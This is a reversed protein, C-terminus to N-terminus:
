VEFIGLNRCCKKYKKGSRCPCPDNAGIKKRSRIYTEKPMGFLNNFIYDKKMQVPNPYKQGLTAPITETLYEELSNQVLGTRIQKNDIYNRWKKYEVSNKLLEFFERLVGEELPFRIALAYCREVEKKSAKRKFVYKLVTALLAIYKEALLCNDPYNDLLSDAEQIYKAVDSDSISEDYGVRLEWAWVLLGAFDRIMENHDVEDIFSNVVSAAYESNGVAMTSSMCVAETDILKSHLYLYHIRDNFALKGDSMAYEVAYDQLKDSFYCLNAGAMKEYAIETCRNLLYAYIEVDEVSSFNCEDEMQSVLEWVRDWDEDKYRGTRRDPDIEYIVNQIHYAQISLNTRHVFDDNYDIGNVLEKLLGITYESTQASVRGGETLYRVADLLYQCKRVKLTRNDPSKALKESSEMGEKPLSWGFHMLLSDHLGEIRVAKLKDPSDSSVPMDRWYSYEESVIEKLKVPNDDITIVEHHLLAVRAYMAPLNEYSKTIDRIYQMLRKDIPFDVLCRYIFATYEWPNNKWLENGVEVFDDVYRLFLAEKIIDPYLPDIVYENEPMEVIGHAADKVISYLMERREVGPLTGTAVYKKLRDWDCRYEDPMSGESLASIGARVLLRILAATREIDGDLAKVWHEREKDLIGDIIEGYSRYGADERGNDIWSQVYIQLFLPRFRMQEFKRAYDDRLKQDRALDKPMSKKRCIDGILNVVAEDDLDDLYIFDHDKVYLSPNYESARFDARDYYPFSQELSYYWSGSITLNEREIFLIRLKYGSCDEDNFVKRLRIVIDSIRKENGKVYDFVALTDSFPIFADADTEGAYQNVFFGFYGKPMHHLLEYVLRSKGAGAQGTVAWWRFDADNELFGRIQGLEKKRGCFKLYESTYHFESLGYIDKFKDTWITRGVIRQSEIKSAIRTNILDELYQPLARYTDGYAIPIINGPLNKVPHEKDYLYYHTAGRKLWKGSFEILRSINADETTQGCGIFIVTRTGLINQLFQVGENDIISYYQEKSAIINDIGKSSDFMGHLHLVSKMKKYKLLEFVLDPQEYTLSGVDAAEEILRDYNTTAIVDNLIFLKRITKALDYDTVHNTEFSDQMWKFYSGEKRIIPLVEGVIKIMNDTSWDVKLREKLDDRMKGDAIRSIGNEIWKGWGYPKGTLASSIGTGFIYVLENQRIDKYFEENEDIISRIM